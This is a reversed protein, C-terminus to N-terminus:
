KVLQTHVSASQRQICNAAIDVDDIFDYALTDWNRSFAEEEFLVLNCEAEFKVFRAMIAEARRNEEGVRADYEAVDMSGEFVRALYTGAIMIGFNVGIGLRYHASLASDGVVVFDRGEGGGGGGGGGTRGGVVAARRVAVDFWKQDHVEIGAREEPVIILDLIDAVLREVDVEESEVDSSFFIQLECHAHFFRKFVSTVGRERWLYFGLLYPDVDKHYAPCVDGGGERPRLKVILTTHTGAPGYDRGGAVVRPPEAASIGLDELAAGKAGEAVVILSRSEEELGAATIESVAANSGFRVDVGLSILIKALFVELGRCPLTLIRGGRGDINVNDTANLDKVLDIGLSTLFGLSDFNRSLANISSTAVDFFIDRNYSSRKEHITIQHPRISGSQIATLAAILSSPGGGLINVRDYPSPRQNTAHRNILSNLIRLFESADPDDKYLGLNAMLDADNKSLASVSLLSRLSPPNSKNACTGEKESASQSTPLALLLLLMLLVDHWKLVM